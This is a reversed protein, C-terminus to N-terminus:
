VGLEKWAKMAPIDKEKFESRHFYVWRLLMGFSYERPQDVLQQFLQYAAEQNSNGSLYHYLESKNPYSRHVWSGPDDLSSPKPSRREVLDHWEILLKFLIELPMSQLLKFCSRTNSLAILDLNLRYKKLLKNIRQQHSYDITLEIPQKTNYYTHLYEPDLFLKELVQDGKEQTSSKIEFLPGTFNKKEFSNEPWHYDAIVAATQQDIVLCDLCEPWTRLELTYDTKM